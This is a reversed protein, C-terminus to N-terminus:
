CPKRKKGCRKKTMDTDEKLKRPTAPRGHHGGRRSRLLTDRRSELPCDGDRRASKGHPRDEDPREGPESKIRKFMEAIEAPTGEFLMKM